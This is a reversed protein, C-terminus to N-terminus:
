GLTNVQELELELDWILALGESDPTSLSPPGDQPLVGLACQRRGAMLAPLSVNMGLPFAHFSYVGPGLLDQGQPPLRM